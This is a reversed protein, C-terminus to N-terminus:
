SSRSWQAATDRVYMEYTRPPHGLLLTTAAVETPSTPIGRRAVFRYSRQYDALKQGSLRRGLLEAWDPRSGDYRVPRGLVGSWIRAAQLGSISEPGVLSYGGSPFGPDTMARSVVDAADRLDIRNVGSDHVPLIYSGELIDERILEDNQYYNTLGFVVPRNRARTMRHSIRLKGRYHPLAFGVLARMIWRAVANPAHIYTGAFVLRVGLRDCADVFTQAMREEAPDHPSVYLAASVGTLAAEVSAADRLDGIVPEVGSPLQRVRDPGRVLARVDAGRALLAAAVERGISGTAGTVLVTM